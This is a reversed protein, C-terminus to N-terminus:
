YRSSNSNIERIAELEEESISIYMILYDSEDTNSDYAEISINLIIDETKAGKFGSKNIIALVAKLEEEKLKGRNGYDYSDFRDYFDDALEYEDMPDSDSRGSRYLTGNLFVPKDSTNLIDIYVSFDRDSINKEEIIEAITKQMKKNSAKNTYDFYMELTRPTMKGIVWPQSYNFTHVYGLVRIDIAVHNIKETYDYEDMDTSICISAYEKDSLAQAEEKFSEWLEMNQKDSLNSDVNIDVIEKESPFQRSKITYEDNKIRLKLVEADERNGLYIIRSFQRGNKMKFSVVSTGQYEYDYNMFFNKSKMSRVNRVLASALIDKMDPDDYRIGKVANARFSATGMDYDFGSDLTVYDIKEAQVETNLLANGFFYAGVAIIATFVLPILFFPASKLMSKLKKTTIVEFLLYCILAFLFIVIITDWMYSFEDSGMDILIVALLLLLPLATASRFVTQLVKNLASKGATESRRQKFCLCGLAMYILGLCLTYVISAPTILSNNPTSEFSMIDFMGHIFGYPINTYPDTFWGLTKANVVPAVNSVMSVFVQIILRPLLLLMITLVFNSFRTGTISVAFMSVGAILLGSGIFGVLLYPVFYSNFPLGCLLYTLWTLITTVIVTAVIWSMVAASISLYTCIRTNPLSHYFDSDKRKNLFSFANYTFFIGSIFVYPILLPVSDNVSPIFVYDDTGSIAVLVPIILSILLTLFGCILAILKLQRLEDLYLKINFIRQNM